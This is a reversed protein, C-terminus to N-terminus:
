AGLEQNDELSFGLISLPLKFLLEIPASFFTLLFKPSSAANATYLLDAQNLLGLFNTPLAGQQCALFSKALPFFDKVMNPDRLYWVDGSQFPHCDALFSLAQRRLETLGNKGNQIGSDVGAGGGNDMM